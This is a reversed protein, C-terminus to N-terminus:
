NLCHRAKFFDATNPTAGNVIEQARANGVADLLCQEMAPTIQTPLTAPDVGLSELQAEQQEDLLPNKDVNDIVAENTGTIVKIASIPSVGAPLASKIELPDVIWLYAIAILLIIFIIGLTVFFGNLIKVFTNM